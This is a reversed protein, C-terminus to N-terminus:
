KSKLVNWETKPTFSSNTIPLDIASLSNHTANHCSNKRTNLLILQENEILKEM